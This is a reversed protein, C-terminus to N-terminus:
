FFFNNQSISKGQRRFLKLISAVATVVAALSAVSIGSVAGCSLSGVTCSSSKSAVPSSTSTPASGTNSVIPDTTLYSGVSTGIGATAAPTTTAPISAPAGGVEAGYASCYADYRTIGLNIDTGDCSLETICHSLSGIGSTMVDSRCLCSNASCQVSMAIGDVCARVCYRDDAVMASISIAEPSLIVQFSYPLRFLIFLISFLVPRLIRM